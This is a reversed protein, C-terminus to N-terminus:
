GGDNGKDPEDDRDNPGDPRHRAPPCRFSRGGMRLGRVVKGPDVRDLLWIPRARRRAQGPSDPRDSMPPDAVPQRSPVARAHAVTADILVGALAWAQAGTIDVSVRGGPATVHLSLMPGPSDPAQVLVMEITVDQALYTSGIAATHTHTSDDPAHPYECWSPHTSTPRM